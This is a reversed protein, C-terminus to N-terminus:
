FICFSRQKYNKYFGGLIEALAFAVLIGLVIFTDYYEIDFDM